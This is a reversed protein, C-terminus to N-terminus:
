FGTGGTFVGIGVLINVLIPPAGVGFYYWQNQGVAVDTRDVVTKFPLLSILEEFAPRPVADDLSKSSAQPHLRSNFVGLSAQSQGSLTLVHFAGSKRLLSVKHKYCTQREPKGAWLWSSGISRELTLVSM